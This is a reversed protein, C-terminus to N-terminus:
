EAIFATGSESEIRAIPHQYLESLQATTLLEETTGAKVERGALLLMAHDCYRAALNVDHLAMIVTHQQESALQRFLTMLNHQQHLDLHNVPEDLLYIQPAQALLMAIDLRRREGGSLSNLPRAAFGNLGVTDLAQQAIAIDQDSEWQWTRIHPHRGILVHELVTNPFADSHDQLLLGLQQALERRPYDTLSRDNLTITGSHLPHLAALSRLLTSKGAGNIGLLAWCEGHQFTASLDRCITKNGIEIQLRSIHLSAM